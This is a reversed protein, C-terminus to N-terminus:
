SVVMLIWSSALLTMASSKLILTMAATIVVKDEMVVEAVVINPVPAAPMTAKNHDMRMKAMLRRGWIQLGGTSRARHRSSVKKWIKESLQFIMMSSAVTRRLLSTQILAQRNDAPNAVLAEALLVRATREMAVTINRSNDLTNSMPKLNHYHPLDWENPLQGLLSPPLHLSEWLM